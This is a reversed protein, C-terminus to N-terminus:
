GKGIRLVGHSHPAKGNCCVSTHKDMMKEEVGQMSTLNNGASLHDWFSWPLLPGHCGNQRTRQSVLVDAQVSLLRAVQTSLKACPNAM